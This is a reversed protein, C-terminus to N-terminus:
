DDELERAIEAELEDLEYNSQDLLIDDKVTDGEVDVGSSEDGVMEFDASESSKMTPKPEVPASIDEENTSSLESHEEPEIEDTAAVADVGISEFTITEEPEDVRGRVVDAPAAAKKPASTVPPASREEDPMDSWIEDISLGAEYRTYACHFFYNKWFVRERM